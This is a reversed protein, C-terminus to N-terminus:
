EIALVEPEAVERGASDSVDGSATGIVWAGGEFFRLTAVLRSYTGRRFESHVQKKYKFQTIYKYITIKRKPNM